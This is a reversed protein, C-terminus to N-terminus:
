FFIGGVERAFSFCPATCTMVVSPTSKTCTQTCTRTCDPRCTCNCEGCLSPQDCAAFCKAKLLGPPLLNCFRDKCNAPSGFCDGGFISTIQAPAMGIRLGIAATSGGRIIPKSQNPLRM